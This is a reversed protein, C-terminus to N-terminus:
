RKVNTVDARWITEEKWLVVPYAKVKTEKYLIFCFYNSVRHKSPQLRHNYVSPINPSIYM